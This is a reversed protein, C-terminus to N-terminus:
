GLKAKVSASLKGMDARGAVQSKLVAMVKSMDRISAAGSARVAAVVLAELEAETLPAPLYGQLLELELQEAKVLDTRGAQEFQSISDHRQKILKEIVALIQPDDLEIREDVERQKIAAILLRIASLRASDRARMAAKM